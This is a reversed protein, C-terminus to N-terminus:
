SHGMRIDSFCITSDTFVNAVLVGSFKGSEIDRIACDRKIQECFVDGYRNHEFSRDKLELGYTKGDKRLILDVYCNGKTQEVEFGLFSFLDEALSRSDADLSEWDIKEM